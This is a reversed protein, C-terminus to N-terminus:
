GLMCTKSGCGLRHRNRAIARYARGLLGPAGPVRCALALPVGGPLLRLIAPLAAAGKFVARAPSVLHMAQELEARAIGPLPALAAHDQFPVFTLERRRDWRRLLEVSSRCFSCDGDYILTWGPSAAPGVAGSRAPAGVTM